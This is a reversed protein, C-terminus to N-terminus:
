DRHSARGARKSRPLRKPECVREKENAVRGCDLCVFRPADVLGAIKGLNKKVSQGLKCM